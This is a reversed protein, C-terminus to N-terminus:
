YKEDFCLDLDEDLLFGDDCGGDANKDFGEMGGHVDSNTLTDVTLIGLETLVPAEYTANMFVMEKKRNRGFRLGSREVAL